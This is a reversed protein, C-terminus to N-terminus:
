PIPFSFDTTDMRKQFYYVRITFCHDLIRVLRGKEDFWKIDLRNLRSIPPNYFQTGSYNNPQNLLTKVSRSSTSTNNPLQCFVQPANGINTGAQDAVINCTDGNMKGLSLFIKCNTLVVDSIICNSYPGNCKLNVFTNSFEGYDGPAAIDVFLVNDVSNITKPSSMYPKTINENTYNLMIYDAISNMVILDPNIIFGNDPFIFLTGYEKQNKDAFVYRNLNSDYSVSVGINGKKIDFGAIRLVNNFQKQMECALSGPSLYTGALVIIYGETSKVGCEKSQYGFYLRNADTPINVADDTAAPVYIEILEAKYIKDINTNLKVSYTNPNPYVTKNRKESSVLIDKFILDYKNQKVSVNAGGLSNAGGLTNTQPSIYETILNKLFSKTVIENNPDAQTIQNTYRHPRYTNEYDELNLQEITKFHDKKLNLFILFVIVIGIPLLVLSKM